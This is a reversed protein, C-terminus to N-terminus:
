AAPCPHTCDVAARVVQETQDVWQQGNEKKCDDIRVQQRRTRQRRLHSSLMSKSVEGQSDM